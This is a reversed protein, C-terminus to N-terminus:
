RCGTDAAEEEAGIFITDEAEATGAEAEAAGVEVEAEWVLVSLCGAEEPDFVELFFGELFADCAVKSAITVSDSAEEAVRVAEEPKSLETSDDM